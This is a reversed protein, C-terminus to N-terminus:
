VSNFFSQGSSFESLIPPPNGILFLRANSKLVITQYQYESLSIPKKLTEYTLVSVVLIQKGAASTTFRFEGEVTTTAGDYSGEIFVNAGSIPKDKIDVVKGTIVLQSFTTMTVFFLMLTLLTKM